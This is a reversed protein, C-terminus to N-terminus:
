LIVPTHPAHHTHPTAPIGEPHFLGQVRLAPPAIPLPDTRNKGAIAPRVLMEGGGISTAAMVAGPGIVKLANRMGYPLPAPLEAVDWAPLAGHDPPLSSDDKPWPGGAASVLPASM